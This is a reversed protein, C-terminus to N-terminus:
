ETWDTDKVPLSFTPRTTPFATCLLNPFTISSNPPFLPIRLPQLNWDDSFFQGCGIEKVAHMMVGSASKDRATGATKKPATPVAPCRQVDVLRSYRCLSMAGSTRERNCFNYVM